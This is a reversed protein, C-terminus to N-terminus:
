TRRAAPSAPPRMDSSSIPLGRDNRLRCGGGFDDDNGFSGRKLMDRTQKLAFPEDFAARREDQEALGEFCVPLNAGAFIFQIRRHSRRINQGLQRGPPHDQMRHRNGLAIRHRLDRHGPLM